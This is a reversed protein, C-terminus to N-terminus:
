PIRQAANEAQARVERKFALARKVTDRKMM